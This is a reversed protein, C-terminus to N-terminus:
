DEKPLKELETIDIIYGNRFLKGSSELLFTTPVPNGYKKWTPLGSDYGFQKSAISLLSIADSRAWAALEKDDPKEPSDVISKYGDFLKKEFESMEPEDSTLVFLDSDFDVGLFLSHPHGDNSYKVPKRDIIAVIPNKGVADWYVIEVPEGRRTVVKMEGSEIQPRYKINFPIKAM